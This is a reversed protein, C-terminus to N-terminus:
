NLIKQRLSGIMADSDSLLLLASLGKRTALENDRNKQIARIIDHIRLERLRDENIYRAAKQLYDLCLESQGRGDYYYAGLLYLNGVIEKDIMSNAELLSISFNCLTIAKDSIIEDKGIQFLLNHATLGMMAGAIKDVMGTSEPRKVFAWINPLDQEATSFLEILKATNDTYNPICQFLSLLNHLLRQRRTARRGSDISMIQADICELSKKVITRKTKSVEENHILVFLSHLECVVPLLRRSRSSCYEDVSAQLRNLAYSYWLEVAVEKQANNLKRWKKRESSPVKQYSMLAYDLYNILFEDIENRNLADAALNCFYYYVNKSVQEEGFRTNKILEVSSRRGIYYNQLM